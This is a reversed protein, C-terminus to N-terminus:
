KKLIYLVSKLLLKIRKEIFYTFNSEFVKSILKDFKNNFENVSITTM